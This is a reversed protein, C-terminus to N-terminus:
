EDGGKEAKVEALGLQECVVSEEDWMWSYMEFVEESDDIVVRWPDVELLRGDRRMVVAVPRRTPGADEDTSSIRHDLCTFTRDFLGVLLAKEYGTRSGLGFDQVFCPDILDKTFACEMFWGDMLPFHVFSKVKYHEGRPGYLSTTDLPVRHGDKDVPGLPVVEGDATMISDVTLREKM